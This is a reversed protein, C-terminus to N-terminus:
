RGEMRKQLLLVAFWRREDTFVARTELGFCGLYRTLDEIVFKRSIEVMVQEGARLPIDLGLPRLHVTQSRSFRAFTEIRQWERNYRAVHEIAGLDLGADLERNMRAFLNKTFEATIGARDNYAAELVAPDKVLDVGLLFFDGPELHDSVGRWFGISEAHNFNGVNSGLFLVLCPSYEKFLSFSDEYTAEVGIFRVPPFAASISAQAAQLASPSVDVAVYSLEAGGESYWRLLHRTKLATGSGLEIVTVDGTIERIERARAALIAEETRTLYYEPQECILEFLESGRADYLYRSPIWRPTDSLGLAVSRAFELAPNGADACAASSLSVASKSDSM